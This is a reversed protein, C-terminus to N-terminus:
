KLIKNKKRKLEVPKPNRMKWLNNGSFRRKDTKLNSASRPTNKKNRSMIARCQLLTDRSASKNISNLLSKQFQYGSDKIQSLQSTAILCIKKQILSFNRVKAEMNSLVMILGKEYYIHCYGIIHFRKDLIKIDLSM